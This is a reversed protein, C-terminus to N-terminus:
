SADVRPLAIKAPGQLVNGEVDYRSGHCACDWTRDTANWGVTCGMHTCRPNLVHAVGDEDRYAAVRRGGELVLSGQGPLVEALTKGTTKVILVDRPSEHSIRDPVSGFAFRRGGAM